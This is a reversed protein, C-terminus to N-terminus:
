ELKINAAIGIKQYQAMMIRVLNAYEAPGIPAVVYGDRLAVSKVEPTQLTRMLDASLRNVADRPTAAPAWIAM